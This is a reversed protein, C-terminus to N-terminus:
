RTELPPLFHQRGQLCRRKADGDTILAAMLDSRSSTDMSKTTGLAALRGCGEALLFSLKSVTRHNGFELANRLECNRSSLWDYNHQEQSPIPPVRDVDPPENAMWVGRRGEVRQRLDDREKKLEAVTAELKHLQASVDPVARAESELDRRLREQRLLEKDLLEQERM